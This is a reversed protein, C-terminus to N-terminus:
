VFARSMRMQLFDLEFGVARLYDVLRSFDSRYLWITVGFCIIFLVLIINQLHRTAVFRHRFNSNVFESVGSSIKDRSAHLEELKSLFRRDDGAFDTQSFQRLEQIFDYAGKELKTRSGIMNVSRAIGEALTVETAQAESQIRAMEKKTIPNPPDQQVSMYYFHNACVRLEEVLGARKKMQEKEWTYLVLMAAAIAPLQGLIELLIGLRSAIAYVELIIAICIAAFLRFGLAM